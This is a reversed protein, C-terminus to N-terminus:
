FVFCRLVHLFTGLDYIFSNSYGEVRVFYKYLCHLGFPKQGNSIVIFTKTQEKRKIQIAINYYPDVTM